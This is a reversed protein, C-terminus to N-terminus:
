KRFIILPFLILISKISFYWCQFLERRMKNCPFLYHAVKHSKGFRNGRTGVRDTIFMKYCNAAIPGKEASKFALVQEFLCNM